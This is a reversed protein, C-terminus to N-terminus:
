WGYKGKTEAKTKIGARVPLGMRSEPRIGHLRKRLAAVHLLLWDGANASGAEGGQARKELIELEQMKANHFLTGIQHKRKAM